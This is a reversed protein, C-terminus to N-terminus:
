ESKFFKIQNRLNSIALEASKNFIEVKATFEKGAIQVDQEAAEVYGEQLKLADRLGTLNQELAEIDAKRKELIDKANRLAEVSEGIASERLKLSEREYDARNKNIIEIAKSLDNAVVTSDVGCTALAAAWCKSEDPIFQKLNMFASQVSQYAQSKTAEKQLMETLELNVEVAEAIPPALEKPTQVSVTTNPTQEEDSPVETWLHKTIIQKWM